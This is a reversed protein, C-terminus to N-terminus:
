SRVPSQRRRVRVTPRSLLSTVLPPIVMCLECLLGYPSCLVFGAPPRTAQTYSWRHIPSRHSQYAPPLSPWALCCPRCPRVHPSSDQESMPIASPTVQVYGHAFQTEEKCPLTQPYRTGHLPGMLYQSAGQRSDDQRRLVRPAQRHHYHRSPVALAM